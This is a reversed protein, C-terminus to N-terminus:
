KEIFAVIRLGIRDGVLGPYGSVGFASRSIAGTLLIALRDRSAPATGPQRYLEARLTVPRTVGHFSLHGNVIAGQLSGHLDDSRFAILPHRRIDLLKPGHMAETAFIFGARAERADLVVAVRSEPLNLVDIKMDASQVPMHGTISTEGLMYTFRVDSRATDLRYQEPAARALTALLCFLIPLIRRM